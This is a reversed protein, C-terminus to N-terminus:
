VDFSGDLRQGSAGVHLDQSPIGGPLTQDEDNINIITTQEFVSTHLSSESLNLPNLQSYETNTAHIPSPLRDVQMEVVNEPERLAFHRTPPSTERDRSSGQDVRIQQSDTQATKQQRRTKLTERREERQQLTLDKSIIVKHYAENTKRPIHRANDLLFKRQAKSDLVIKLPRIKSDEKKGLRFSTVINLNELGLSASINLIDQEDAQKNEVGSRHRHEDLNFVTLNLERRKRDELEKNRQDVVSYIEGKISEIISSKMNTMQLTVVDKTNSELKDMRNEINTMRTDHKNQIDQLTGAINKLTPFMSKCSRCTWHFDDLEGSILCEYLQDSIKACNTCFALKCGTCTVVKDVPADCKQCLYGSSNTDSSSQRPRKSDQRVSM